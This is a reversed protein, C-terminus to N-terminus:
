RSQNRSLLYGAAFGAAIVPWPHKLMFEEAENVAGSVKEAVASGFSQGDHDFGMGEAFGASSEVGFATGAEAEVGAMSPQRIFSPHPDASAQDLTGLGAAATQHEM